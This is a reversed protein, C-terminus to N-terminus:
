RLTPVRPPPVCLSLYLVHIFIIVPPVSRSAVTNNVHCLKRPSVIFSELSLILKSAQLFGEKIMRARGCSAGIKELPTVGHVRKASSSM